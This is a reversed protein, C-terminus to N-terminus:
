TGPLSKNDKYFSLLHSHLKGKISNPIQSQFKKKSDNILQERLSASDLGQRVCLRKSDRMYSEVDDAWSCSRLESGAERVLLEKLKQLHEYSRLMCSDGTENSSSERKLLNESEKSHSVASSGNSSSCPEKLQVNGTEHSLSHDPDRKGNSVSIDKLVKGNNMSVDKLVRGNATTNSSQGERSIQNVPRDMEKKGNNSIEKLVRGNVNNNSILAKGKNISKSEGSSGSNSPSSTVKNNLNNKKIVTGNNRTDTKTTGNSVSNQKKIEFKVTGIQKVSPSQAIINGNTKNSTTSVGNQKILPAKTIETKMPPTTGNTYGNKTMKHPKTPYNPNKLMYFLIYVKESLVEQLSSRSVQTDNCCYWNGCADKIYAYYHGSEASYGSHVISGFLSYESRSDKTGDFMYNSLLLEEEFEIHRNIKGGILGEFRKLQIVLVNPARSVFMQKRAVSLKKCRECSYKNSGDLVEPKFFRALADKVSGSQCLDLSLDMIEDTKNSEGKCSMCKVQSLVAGGFIDRMVTGVGNKEVLGNHPASPSSRAKALKVSSVHCTDIVYRLFEHADEQRGWKFHEAFLSLCKLVKTPSEVAPIITGNQPSSLLRAIQREMICFACEKERNTFVAKCLSSHHSALCFQAFPPTHALCQLVSNLYCTNGLNKLGRPPGARRLLPGWAMELRM